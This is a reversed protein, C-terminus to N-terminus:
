KLITEHACCDTNEGTVSNHALVTGSLDAPIKWCWTSDMVHLVSAIKLTFSPGGLLLM